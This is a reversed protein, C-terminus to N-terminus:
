NNKLFMMDNLCYSAHKSAQKWHYMACYSYCVEEFTRPLYVPQRPTKLVEHYEDTETPFTIRNEIISEMNYSYNSSHIKKFLGPKM